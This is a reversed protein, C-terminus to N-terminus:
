ARRTSLDAWGPTGLSETHIKEYLYRNSVAFGFQATFRKPSLALRASRVMGRMTFALMIFVIM